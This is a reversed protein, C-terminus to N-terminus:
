AAMERREGGLLEELERAVSRAELHVLGANAGAPAFVALVAKGGASYLFIQGETGTVLTEVMPGAGVGESVKKGLSSAAAAMAALRAPEMGPSLAHAIPLGETSAVLVGRLEPISSRLGDVQRQIQDLKAM